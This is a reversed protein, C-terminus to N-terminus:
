HTPEEQRAAFAPYARKLYASAGDMAFAIARYERAVPCDGRGYGRAVPDTTGEIYVDAAAFEENCEGVVVSFNVVKAKTM